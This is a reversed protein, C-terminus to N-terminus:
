MLLKVKEALSGDYGFAEVVGEIELFSTSEGQLEELYWDQEVIVVNVREQLVWKGRWLCDLLFVKVLLM